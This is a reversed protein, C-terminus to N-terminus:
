NRVDKPRMRANLAPRLAGTVSDRLTRQDYASLDLEALSLRLASTNAVDAADACGVWTDVRASVQSDASREQRFGSPATGKVRYGTGQEQRFGSPAGEHVHALEFAMQLTCAHVHM